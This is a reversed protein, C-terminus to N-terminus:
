DEKKKKWTDIIQTILEGSWAGIYGGVMVYPVLDEDHTKSYLYSSLSGILTLTSVLWKEKLNM